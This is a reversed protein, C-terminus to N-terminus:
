CFLLVELFELEYCEWRISEVIVVMHTTLLVLNLLAAQDEERSALYTLTSDSDCLPSRLLMM